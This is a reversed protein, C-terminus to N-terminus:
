PRRGRRQARLANLDGQWPIKGRMELLDRRKLLKAYEALAANVAAKKTAFRGMRVIEGVLEDDLEIHTKM